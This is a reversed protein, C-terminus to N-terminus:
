RLETCYTGILKLCSDGAETYPMELIQLKGFKPICNLFDEFYPFLWLFHLYPSRMVHEPLLKLFLSEEKKL